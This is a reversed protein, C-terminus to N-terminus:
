SDGCDAEEDQTDDETNFDVEDEWEDKWEDEMTIEVALGDPTTGEHFIDSIIVGIQACHEDEIVVVNVNKLKPNKLSRLWPFFEDTRCMLVHVSLSLKALSPMSFHQFLQLTQSHDDEPNDDILVFEQLSPLIVHTEPEGDYDVEFWNIHLCRLNRAVPEIAEM